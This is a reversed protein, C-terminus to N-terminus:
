LYFVTPANKLAKYNYSVSAKNSISYSGQFEAKKFDIYQKFNLSLFSPFKVGNVFLEMDMVNMTEVINDVRGRGYKDYAGALVTKSLQFPYKQSVAGILGNAATIGYYKYLDLQPDITSIGWTDFSTPTLNSTFIKTLSKNSYSTLEEIDKEKLRQIM